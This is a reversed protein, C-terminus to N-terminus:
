ARRRVPTTLARRVSWGLTKVRKWLTQVNIKVKRAWNAITKTVGNLTLRVNSSRNNASNRPTTWRLNFEDGFRLCEECVGCTYGGDNNIRDLVWDPYPKLGVDALFAPFGTSERYRKCVRIGRDAYHKKDTPHSTNPDVRGLANQWAAYEVTGYGGHKTRTEIAICGCSRTLGRVLSSSCVIKQTRKSCSCQCVWRQHGHKRDAKEIVTLREFETGLKIDGARTVRTTM